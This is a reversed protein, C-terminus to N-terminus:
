HVNDSPTGQLHLFKAALKQIEKRRPEDFVIRDLLEDLWVEMSNGDLFIAMM